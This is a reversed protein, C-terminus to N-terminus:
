STFKKNKEYFISPITGMGTAYDITEFGVSMVPIYLYPKKNAAYSSPLHNNDGSPSTTPSWGVQAIPLSPPGFSQSQETTMPQGDAFIDLEYDM